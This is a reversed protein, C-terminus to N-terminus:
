FVLKDGLIKFGGFQPYRFSNYRDKRKFRPRKTLGVFFAQYARDLRLVVDQLVQSHVAKLFKSLPKMSTITKKQEYFWTHNEGRDAFMDNFLLRCTEPTENMLHEQTKTPYLRFRYTTLM